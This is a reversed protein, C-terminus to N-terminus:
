YRLITIKSFKIIPVYNNLPIIMLISLLYQPRKNKYCKFYFITIYIRNLSIYNLDHFFIVELSFTYFIVNLRM